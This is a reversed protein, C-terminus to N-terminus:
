FISVFYKIVILLRFGINDNRRSPHDNNVNRLGGNDSNGAVLRNVDGDSFINKIKKMLLVSENTMNCVFTEGAYNIHRTQDENILFVSHHNANFPSRSYM